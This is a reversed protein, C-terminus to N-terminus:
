VAILVKWYHNKCIKQELIPAEGLNLSGRRREKPSVQQLIAVFTLSWSVPSLNKLEELVLSRERSKQREVLKAM